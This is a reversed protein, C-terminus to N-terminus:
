QSLDAGAETPSLPAKTCPDITIPNPDPKQPWAYLKKHPLLKKGAEITLSWEKTDTLPHINGEASIELPLWYQFDHGKIHDPRSGWRDAMWMLVPGHESPLTAVYTQQGHIVPDNKADRNINAIQTYPGLPSSSKFVRAGSGKACFCCTSDFLVFYDNDHRFMSPAECGKALIQSTEGTSSLYDGALKEVRIAHDQGIVTYVFYANKDQDVFLSGDGPHDAAQSLHVNSDIITFPGTPTDSTAVGVQGNWLKPYWNYWLIYKRTAANYVVSPRYYVGDTPAKLLEGEYDWHVLDASSYTRFRNNISFGATRGYATGYLYYRGNFFQLNGDHADVIAGKSDYRPKDNHITVSTYSPKQAPAHPVVTAAFLLAAIRFWRLVM